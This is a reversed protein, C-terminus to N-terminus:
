FYIVESLIVNHGLGGLRKTFYGSKIFIHASFTNVNDNGTVM